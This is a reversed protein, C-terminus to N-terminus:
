YGLWERAAKLTAPITETIREVGGDALVADTSVLLTNNEALEARCLDHSNVFNILAATHNTNTPMSTELNLETKM